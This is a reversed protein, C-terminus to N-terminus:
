KSRMKIFSMLDEENVVYQNGVKLAHLKKIQIYFWVMQRSIKLKEAVESLSFLM